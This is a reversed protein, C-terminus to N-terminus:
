SLLKLIIPYYSISDHLWLQSIGRFIGYALDAKQPFFLKTPFLSTLLPMKLHSLSSSHFYQIM